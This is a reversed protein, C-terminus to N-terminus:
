FPTAPKYRHNNQILSPVSPSSFTCWCKVKVFPWFWDQGLGWIKKLISNSLYELSRNLEWAIPVSENTWVATFDIRNSIKNRSWSCLNEKDYNFENKFYTKSDFNKFNKKIESEFASKWLDVQLSESYKPFM